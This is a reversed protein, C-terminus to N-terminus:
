GDECGMERLGMKSIVERAACSLSGFLWLAGNSLIRVWNWEGGIRVFWEGLIWKVSWKEPLVVWLDLCGCRAMQCYGSGTGSM